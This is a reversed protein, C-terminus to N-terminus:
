KDAKLYDNIINRILNGLSWQKADAIKKLKEKLKDDLLITFPKSM